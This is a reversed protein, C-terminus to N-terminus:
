KRNLKKITHIDNIINSIRVYEWSHTPLSKRYTRLLRKALATDDEMLAKRAFYYLYSKDDPNLLQWQRKFYEQEIMNSYYQAILRPEVFVHPEEIVYKFIAEPNEKSLTYATEAMRLRAM